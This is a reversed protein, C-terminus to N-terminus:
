GSIRDGEYAECSDRDAEQYTKSSQFNCLGGIRISSTSRFGIEIVQAPRSAAYTAVALRHIHSIQTGNRHSTNSTVIRELQERSTAVFNGPRIVRFTCSLEQGGGVPDNDAESTFVSDSPSRSELVAVSTGIRYLEGMVLADDWRRQLGSVAQAM